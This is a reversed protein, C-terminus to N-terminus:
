DPRGAFLPLAPGAADAEIALMKRKVAIGGHASFGGVKGGAALVRHCPVIIPFPNAGEAQGVSQAAGPEGIREAIEGYTLTSGPPIGRTVEYVRRNFAPIGELDLTITTLDSPKGAMLAAIRDIADQVSPPPATEVVAPFRRQMRTRTAEMSAESLQVGSIGSESWAIACPGIATEFLAFGIATM